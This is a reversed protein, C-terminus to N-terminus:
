TCRALGSSRKTTFIREWAGQLDYGGRRLAGAEKDAIRYRRMAGNHPYICRNRLNTEDDREISNRPM